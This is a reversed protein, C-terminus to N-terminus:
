ALRVEAGYFIPSEKVFVFNKCSYAQALSASGSGKKGRKFKRYKERLSLGRPRVSTPFTDSAAKADPIQLGGLAPLDPVHRKEEQFEKFM